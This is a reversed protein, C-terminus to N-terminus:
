TNQETCKKNKIIICNVKFLFYVKKTIDSCRKKEKSFNIHYNCNNKSRNYFNIFIICLKNNLIFM